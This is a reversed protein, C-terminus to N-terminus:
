KWHFWKMSIFRKILTISSNIKISIKILIKSDFLFIFKRMNQAKPNKVYHKFRKGNKYFHKRKFTRWYKRIWKGLWIEATVNSYMTLVKSIIESEKQVGKINVDSLVIQNIMSLMPLLRVTLLLLCLLCVYVCGAKRIECKM